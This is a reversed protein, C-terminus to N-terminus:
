RCLSFLSYRVAAALYLGADTSYEQSPFHLRPQSFAGPYTRCHPQLCPSFLDPGEKPFTLLSGKLRLFNLPGLVFVGGVSEGAKDPAWKRAKQPSVRGARGPEMAGLKGM